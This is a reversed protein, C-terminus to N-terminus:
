LGVAKTEAISVGRGHVYGHGHWPEGGFHSLVFSANPSLELQTLAAYLALEFYVVERAYRM